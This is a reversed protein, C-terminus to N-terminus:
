FGRSVKQRGEGPECGTLATFLFESDVSGLTSLCLLSSVGLHLFIFIVALEPGQREGGSASSTRRSRFQIFWPLVGM